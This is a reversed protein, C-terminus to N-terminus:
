ASEGLGLERYIMENLARARQQHVKEGPMGNFAWAVVLDHEPDAFAASSQAGSHGFTEESCFRGYGYPVTESGYQNSNVMFGLGWDIQHRFTHDFLGIRQRSTIMRATEPKLLGRAAPDSARLRLLEQYFRLLEQVPGRANSGPRCQTAGQESNWFDHQQPPRKETRYMQAIRTGYSRYAAEPMGIWSDLMELPVFIEERVFQSLLRGDIRRVLEGLIFWSSSIHYAAKEGLAWGPEPRADCIRSVTEEWSLQEDLLDASRFGATHTLLHRVTIQDKGHKNFEPIIGGVRSAWGLDGRDVLKAIAVATIPKGTSLWLMLSSKTMPFGSAADGWANAYVLRGAVAIALQGGLHWQEAIGHEILAATRDLAIM